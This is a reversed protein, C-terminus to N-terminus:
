KTENKEAMRKKKFLVSFLSKKQENDKIESNSATGIGSGSSNSDDDSKQTEATQSKPENADESEKSLLMKKEKDTLKLLRIARDVRLTLRESLTTFKNEINDLSSKAKQDLLNIISTTHKEFDNFKKVYTALEKKDAKDETKVKMKEFDNGLKSFSRQLDKTIDNFKDFEAFKKEVEIFMSEVKNSHREIVAETKKIDILEQKIEENLKAVQEVGKYFNMQRRIGKIESMLDRMLTENSELNAKLAEQKSDLKRVEVMLQDPKVSEVVDIAKTAAAEISSVTKQVDTILGRMEGIQESVSSFRENTALRQQNLGELQAKLKILEVGLNQNQLEDAPKANKQEIEAQENALNQKIMEEDSLKKKFLGM